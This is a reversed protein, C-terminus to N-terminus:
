PNVYNQNVYNQLVYPQVEIGCEVDQYLTLSFRTRVGNLVFTTEQEIAEHRANQLGEVLVDQFVRALTGIAATMAEDQQTEITAASTAGAEPNQIEHYMDIDFRFEYQGSPSFTQTSTPTVLFLRKNVNMETNRFERSGMQFHWGTPKAAQIINKVATLM